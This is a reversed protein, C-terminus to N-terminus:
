VETCAVCNIRGVGQVCSLYTISYTHIYV